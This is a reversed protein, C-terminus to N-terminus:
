RKFRQAPIAGPRKIKQWAQSRVGPEYISDARKAVIGELSLGVAQRFLWEGETEIHDLFLLHPPAPLLLQRLLEKREFLPRDMVARDRFLLLDFAVFTVRPQGAVYRRRKAREQLAMFDPRGLDDLVAIEGDLIHHGDLAILGRVAEPFWATMLTGNRSKLRASHDRVEALCRYGDYKLEFVWEPDTFAKKVETLLMPQLADFDVAAM